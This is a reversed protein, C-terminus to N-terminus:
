FARGIYALTLSLATLPLTKLTTLIFKVDLKTKLLFSLYIM